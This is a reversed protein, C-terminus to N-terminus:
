NMRWLTINLYKKKHIRRSIKQVIKKNIKSDIVFLCKDFFISNDKLIKSLQEVINSGIIIPYSFNKTKVIIQKKKM